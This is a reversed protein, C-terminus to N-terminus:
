CMWDRALRRLESSSRGWSVQKEAEIAEQARYDDLNVRCHELRESIFRRQYDLQAETIKGAVYLRISRDEEM